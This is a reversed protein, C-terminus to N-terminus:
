RATGGGALSPFLVRPINKIIAYLPTRDKAMGRQTVYIFEDTEIQSTISTMSSPAAPQPALSFSPFCLLPARYSQGPDKYSPKTANTNNPTQLNPSALIASYLECFRRPRARGNKTIHPIPARACLAFSSEPFPSPIRTSNDVM